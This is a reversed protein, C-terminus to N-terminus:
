SKSPSLWFMCVEHSAVEGEYAGDTAAVPASEGRHAEGGTRQDDAVDGPVDSDEQDRRGYGLLDCIPNPHVYRGTQPL